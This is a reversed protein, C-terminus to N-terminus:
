IMGNFQWQPRELDGVLGGQVGHHLRLVKKM